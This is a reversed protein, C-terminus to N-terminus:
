NVNRLDEKKLTHLISLKKVTKFFEEETTDLISISGVYMRIIRIKFEEYSKSQLFELSNDIDLLKDLEQKDFCGESEKYMFFRLTFLNAKASCELRKILLRKQEKFHNTALFSGTLLKILGFCIFISLVILLLESIITIISRQETSFTPSLMACKILASAFAIKLVFKLTYIDEERKAMKINSKLDMLMSNISDDNSQKRLNTKYM